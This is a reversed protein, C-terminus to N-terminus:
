ARLLLAVRVHLEIKVDAVGLDLNFLLFILLWVEGVFLM